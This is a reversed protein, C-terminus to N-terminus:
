AADGVRELRERKLRAARIGTLRKRNIRMSALDHLLHRGVGGSVQHSHSGLEPRRARRNVQDKERDRRQRKM